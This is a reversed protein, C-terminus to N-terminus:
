LKLQDKLAAVESASPHDEGYRVKEYCEILQEAVIDTRKNGKQKQKNHEAWLIFDKNTEKPTLYHRVEYGEDRKMLLFRRFLWRVREQESNMQEWRDKQQRHAIRATWFEKLGQFTQEWTFVSTEEDLYARNGQPSHERRLLSLLADMAARLKGGANRYLWRVGYYVVIGLFVAGLMYFAVDFIAALLGPKQDGIPLLEPSAPPAEVPPLPPENSTSFLRNIMGFFSQIVSWMLAGIAKGVGAALVAAIIGIVIVYIRNNWQIGEPLSTTDETLSSYRLHSSNSTLLTLLLCLSGCWTLLNLSAKLEPIRQFVVAAVFYFVIGMWYM